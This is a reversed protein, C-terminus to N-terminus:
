FTEAESPGIALGLVGRRGEASVAVAIIAVVLVARRPAGLYTVDLWLYPRDGEIPRVKPRMQLFQWIRKSHRARM